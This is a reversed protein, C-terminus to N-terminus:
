PLNAGREDRGSCRFRYVMIKVKHRCGKIQSDHRLARQVQENQEKEKKDTRLRDLRSLNLLDNEIITQFNQEQFIM